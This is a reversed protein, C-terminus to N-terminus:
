NGYFTDIIVSAPLCMRSLLLLSTCSFFCIFKKPRGRLLSWMGGKAWLRGFWSLALVSCFSSFLVYIEALHVM